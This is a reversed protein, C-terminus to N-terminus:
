HNVFQKVNNRFLIHGGLFSKALYDPLEITNLFKEPDNQEKAIESYKECEEWYKEIKSLEDFTMEFGHGPIILDPKLAKIEQFIKKWNGPKVGFSMPQFSNVILDGAWIIKEQPLHLIVDSQSHLGDFEIFEAQHNEGWISMRSDFTFNPLRLNIKNLSKNIKEVAKVHMFFDQKDPLTFEFLTPGNEDNEVYKRAKALYKPLGERFSHIMTEKSEVLIERTKTSSIIHSQFEQNGWVHDWHWHSNIAFIESNGTLEKSYKILDEAIEPIAFTDFFITQSGLNIIGSNCMGYSIFDPSFVAYIDEQIKKIIFQETQIITEM